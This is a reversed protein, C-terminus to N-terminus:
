SRETESETRLIDCVLDIPLHHKECARELGLKQIDKREEDLLHFMFPNERLWENRRPYFQREFNRKGNFFLFVLSSLLIVVMWLPHMPIFVVSAILVGVILLLMLIEMGRIIGSM